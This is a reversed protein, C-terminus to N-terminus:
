NLVCICILVSNMQRYRVWENCCLRVKGTSGSTYLMFLIDESDCWEPPAYPREAAMLEQWSEDRGEQMRVNAGTHKYVICKRVNPCKALAADVTAKLPITKGGRKGEDATIIYRCDGDIIRDALAEASFGAFVVSHAFGGRACALMAIALAPVMPMYLSVTDGKRVGMRRLMNTCRCVEQQLQKYTLRVCQNEEDGEWIIAVKDGKGAEVHRDICNYAVNLKGNLFFAIDGDTFSGSSM